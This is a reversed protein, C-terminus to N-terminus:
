NFFVNASLLSRRIRIWELTTSAKVKDITATMGAEDISGLIVGHFIMGVLIDIDDKNKLSITKNDQITNIISIGLAKKDLLERHPVNESTELRGAKIEYLFSPITSGLKESIEILAWIDYINKSLSFIRIM